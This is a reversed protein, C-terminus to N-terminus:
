KLAEKAAKLNEEAKAAKELASKVASAASDSLKKYEDYSVKSQMVNVNLTSKFILIKSYTSQSQEYSSSFNSLSSSMSDECSKVGDIASNASAVINSLLSNTKSIEATIKRINECIELIEGKINEPKTVINGSFSAPLSIAKARVSDANATVAFLATEPKQLIM